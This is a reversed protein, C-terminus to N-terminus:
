LWPIDLWTLLSPVNLDFVHLPNRYFFCALSGCLVMTTRPLYCAVCIKHLHTQSRISLLNRINQKEKILRKMYKWFFYFLECISQGCICFMIYTCRPTM